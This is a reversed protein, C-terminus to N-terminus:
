DNEVLLSIFNFFVVTTENCSLEIDYSGRTSLTQRTYEDDDSIRKGCTRPVYKEFNEFLDCSTLNVSIELKRGDATATLSVCCHRAFFRRGNTRKSM